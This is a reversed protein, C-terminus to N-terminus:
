AADLVGRSRAFASLLTPWASAPNSPPLRVGFGHGGNAFLHMEVPRGATRMAGYMLLANEVPVTDDDAAQMLFVPPTAADVRTEVSYRRITTEDAGPGLLANRSGGHAFRPALTVVAYILAVLDPRASLADAGDVPAYTAEAHRTALSGVLHGGASFGLALVRAPDIGYSGARARILRVARQADQLPADRRDRWGEGPLRYHLVFATVGLRTLWAAQETGENESSVIRYGGGPAILAATGTPRAPRYVHLEPVAIGSLNGDPAQALVLPPGSRGGPPDGPWLRLREPSPASDQAAASTAAGFALM